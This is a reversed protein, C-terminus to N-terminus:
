RLDNTTRETVSSLAALERSTRKKFTDIFSVHRKPLEAIGPAEDLENQTLRQRIQRAHLIDAFGKGFFFFAPILLFLWLLSSVSSNTASLLVAVMFFGDGVIVSGIGNSTLEEPDKSNFKTLNETVIKKDLSNQKIPAVATNELNAGCKRCFNMAEDNKNGCKSCFMINSGRKFKGVGFESKLKLELREIQCKVLLNSFM